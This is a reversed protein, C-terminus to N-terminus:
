QHFQYIIGGLASGGASLREHRQARQPERSAHPTTRPANELSIVNFDNSRLRAGLPAPPL